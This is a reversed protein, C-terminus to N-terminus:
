MCQMGFKVNYQMELSGKCICIYIYIYMDRCIYIYLYVFSLVIITGTCTYIGNFFCELLLEPIQFFMDSQRIEKKVGRYGWGGFSIPKVMSM